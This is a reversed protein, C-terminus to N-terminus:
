KFLTVSGPTVTAGERIIFSYNGMPLSEGNATGDWYAPEGNSIITSYVLKGSTNYVEIKGNTYSEIPFKWTEGKSPYFSYEHARCDKEGIIIERSDHWVCGNADKVYLVYAGAFLDRFVFDSIYSRNDLSFEFPATGTISSKKDIMIKGTPVDGCSALTSINLTTGDINCLPKQIDKMQDSPKVDGSIPEVTPSDNVEALEVQKTENSSSTVITKKIEAVSNGEPILNKIVPSQSNSKEKKAIETTLEQAHLENKPQYTIAIETTKKTNAYYIVSAVSVILLLGTPLIWKRNNGSHHGADIAKLKRKIDLLGEDFVMENVQRQTNVEEFFSADTKMRNTFEALDQGSLQNNLYCDILAYKELEDRM